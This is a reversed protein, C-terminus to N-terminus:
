EKDGLLRKAREIWEHIKTGYRYQDKDDNLKDAM